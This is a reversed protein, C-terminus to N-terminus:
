LRHESIVSAVVTLLRHLAVLSYGRSVAALSLGMCCSLGLVALFLYISLIIPFFNETSSFHSLAVLTLSRQSNRRMSLPAQPSVPWLTAFSNFM